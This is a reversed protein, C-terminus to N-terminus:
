TPPPGRFGLKDAWEGIDLAGQYREAMSTGAAPPNRLDFRLTFFAVPDEQRVPGLAM